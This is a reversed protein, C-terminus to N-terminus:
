AKRRGNALCSFTRFTRVYMENRATPPATVANSNDNTTPGIMRAASFRSDTLWPTRSPVGSECAFFPAVGVIPPSMMRLLANIETASHPRKLRDCGYKYTATAVVSQIPSIPKTSSTSLSRCFRRPSRM